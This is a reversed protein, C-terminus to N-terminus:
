IITIAPNFLQSGPTISRKGTTIHEQSLDYLECFDKVTM